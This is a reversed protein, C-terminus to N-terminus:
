FSVLCHWIFLYGLADNEEWIRKVIAEDGKIVPFEQRKGMWPVCVGPPRKPSPKPTNM